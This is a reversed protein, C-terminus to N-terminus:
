GKKPRPLLEALTAEDMLAGAAIYQRYKVFDIVDTGTIKKTNFATFGLFGEGAM